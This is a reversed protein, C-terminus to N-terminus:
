LDRMLEAIARMPLVLRMSEPLQIFGHAGYFRAAREDIADVVIMTSGVVDANEYAKRLAASLLVSGLGRGQHELHIALRGLLTASVVPYRPLHKRAAEPIVGPSLGSSCLTFYGAVTAPSDEDILVFVANEKRRVDQSAQTKLYADLSEIGCRFGARDHHKELTELRYRSDGTSAM